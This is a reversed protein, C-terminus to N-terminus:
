VPVVYGVPDRFSSGGGSLSQGAPFGYLFVASAKAWRNKM